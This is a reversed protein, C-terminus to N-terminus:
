DERTTGAQGLRTQETRQEGGANGGPGRRARHQDVPQDGPRAEREESPRHVREPNVGSRQVQVVVRRLHGRAGRWFHSFVDSGRVTRLFPCIFSDAVGTTSYSTMTMPAPGTPCVTAARTQSAPSVAATTSRSSTPPSHEYQPQIGLLASNRGTM